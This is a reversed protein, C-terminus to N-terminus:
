VDWGTLNGNDWLRTNLLQATVNADCVPTGAAAVVYNTRWPALAAHQRTHASHERHDARERGLCPVPLALRSWNGGGANGGARRQWQRRWERAARQPDPERYGAVFGGVAPRSMKVTVHEYSFDLFHRRTRPPLLTVVAATHFVLDGLRHTYILRSADLAQRLELVRAEQWWRVSSVFWNNYFGTRTFRACLDVWAPVQRELLPLAQGLQRLAQCESDMFNALARYGYILGQERMEDFINYDIASHIVSDDDIRMVYDYGLSALVDWVTVALFRIM